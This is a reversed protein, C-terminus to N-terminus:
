GAADRETVRVWTASWGRKDRRATFDVRDGEGLTRFEGEAAEIATYHVFIELDVVDAPPWRRDYSPGKKRVEGTLSNAHWVEIRRGPRRM